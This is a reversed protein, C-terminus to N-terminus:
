FNMIKFMLYLVANQLTQEFDHNPNSLGQMIRNKLGKMLDNYEMDTKEIDHRYKEREYVNTIYEQFGNLEAQLKEDSHKNLQVKSM